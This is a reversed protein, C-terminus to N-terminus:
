TTVCNIHLSSFSNKTYHSRTCAHVPPVRIDESLPSRALSHKQKFFRTILYLHKVYMIRLCGIVSSFQLATLFHKFILCVCFAKSYIVGSFETPYSQKNNLLCIIILRTESNVAFIKGNSHRMVFRRFM